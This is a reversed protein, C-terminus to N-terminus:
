VGSEPKEVYWMFFRQKGMFRLSYSLIPSAHNPPVSIGNSKHDDTVM